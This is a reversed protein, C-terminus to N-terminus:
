GADGGARVSRRHQEGAGLHGLEREQRLSLGLPQQPDAAHDGHHVREAEAAAGVVALALGDARLADREVDDGPQVAVEQLRAQETGVLARAAVARGSAKPARRGVMLSLVRPRWTLARLPGPTSCSIEPTNARWRASM